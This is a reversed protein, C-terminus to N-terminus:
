KIQKLQLMLTFLLQNKKKKSDFDITVLIDM